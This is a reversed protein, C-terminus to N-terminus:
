LFWTMSGVAELSALAILIARGIQSFLVEGMTAVRHQPSAINHRRSTTAVRNIADPEGGNRGANV